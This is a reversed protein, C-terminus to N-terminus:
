GKSPRLTMAVRDFFIIFKEREKNTVASVLVAM